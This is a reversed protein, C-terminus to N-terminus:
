ATTHVEMMPKRQALAELALALEVLDEPVAVDHGTLESVRRLRNLVTNRHCYLAEATASASGRRAIWTRLTDLLVDRDEPEIALLPGLTRRMLRDRLTPSSLLIAASLRDELAAVRAEGPRLTEMALEAERYAARVMSLQGFVPSVGVRAKAAARLAVVVAEVSREGLNVIGVQSGARGRWVSTLGSAALLAAPHDLSHKSGRSEALVIAFRGAEPLRLADTANRLTEPDSGRGDLLADFLTDRLQRDRRALEMQTVRFADAVVDSYEDTVRWVATAGDLLSEVDTSGHRRGKGILAQWIVRGGVRYAHLLNELPLGQEARRTGTERPPDLRDPAPDEFRIISETMRFLNDHCSRWLDATPVLGSTRYVKDANLIEGVLRDTVRPLDKLVAAAVAIVLESQGDVSPRSTPGGLTM